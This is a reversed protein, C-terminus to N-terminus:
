NRRSSSPPPPPWPTVMTVGVSAPGALSESAQRLLGPSASGPLLFKAPTAERDMLVRLLEFLQPARQVEDIAVLGRLDELLTM